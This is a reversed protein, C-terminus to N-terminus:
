IMWYGHRWTLTCTALGASTVSVSINTVGPELNWWSFGGNLLMSKSNGNVKATSTASDLVLQENSSLTLSTFSIVQGTGTNTIIPNVAPGTLELMWVGPANGNNTIARTDSPMTYAQSGAVTSYLVPDLVELRTRFGPYKLAHARNLAYNIGLPRAYVFGKDTGANPLMFVFPLKTYPDPIPNYAAALAKRRTAFDADTTVLISGEIGITKMEAYHRGASGGHRGFRNTSGSRNTFGLLGTVESLDYVTNAGIVLGNFEFQYPQTITSAITSYPM